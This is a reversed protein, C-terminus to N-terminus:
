LKVVLTRGLSGGSANHVQLVYCGAQVSQTDITGNHLAGNLVLEGTLTFLQYLTNNGLDTSTIMIRDDFPNPFVSLHDEFVSGEVSTSFLDSQIVEIVGVAFTSAGNVTIGNLVPGSALVRSWTSGGNGTRMIVGQWNGGSYFGGCIVGHDADTFHVGYYSDNPYGTNVTTWAAGGNTSKQVTGFFGAAYGTTASPM